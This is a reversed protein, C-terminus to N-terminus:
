ASSFPSTPLTCTSNPLQIPSPHTSTRAMTHATGCAPTLDCSLGSVLPRRSTNADLGCVRSLVLQSGRGQLGDIWRDAQALQPRIACCLCAFRWECLCPCVVDEDCGNDGDRSTLGSYRHTGTCRASHHHMPSICDKTVLVATAQRYLRTDGTCSYLRASADAMKESHIPTGQQRRDRRAAFLPWGSPPSLDTNIAPCLM